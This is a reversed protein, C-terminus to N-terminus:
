FRPAVALEARRRRYGYLALTTAGIAALYLTPPVPTAMVQDQYSSSTLAILDATPAFNPQVNNKLTYLWSEALTVAKDGDTSEGAALFNGQSFNNYNSGGWDYEIKWIALQFAAAAQNANSGAPPNAIYGYDLSWLDEIETAKTTGMGSGNGNNTSGPTPADALNKLTYTYTSGPNIDQTLEICFTTFASGVAGVWSANPEGAPAKGVTWNVVGPYYDFSHNPDNLAAGNGDNIRVAAGPNLVGGDINGGDLTGTIYDARVASSGALLVALSFLVICSRLPLRM